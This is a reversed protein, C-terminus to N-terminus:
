IKGKTFFRNLLDRASVFKVESLLVKIKHETTRLNLYHRVYKILSIKHKPQMYDLEWPHIYFIFTQNNRNAYNLCWRTFQYPYARFYGGGLSFMIPGLSIFSVPLEIIGKSIEFYGQKKWSKDYNHHFLSFSVSSDYVIGHEQLISFFWEKSIRTPSFNPARYGVIRQGTMDSLVQISKKLDERFTEPTHRYVPKHNYGHSAVEHGANSIKKILPKNKEAVNGLIFFTAKNNSDELLDLIKSLGIELRSSLSSIRNQSLSSYINEAHYYEEVDVTFIHDKM